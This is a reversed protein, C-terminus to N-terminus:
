NGTSHYKVKGPLAKWEATEVPDRADWFHNFGCGKCVVWLRGGLGGGGGAHKKGTRVTCSDIAEYIQRGIDGHENKADMWREFVEKKLRELRKVEKKIQKPEM